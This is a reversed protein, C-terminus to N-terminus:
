LYNQILQLVQDEGVIASVAQIFETGLKGESDVSESILQLYGDLSSGSNMLLSDVEYWFAAGKAYFLGYYSMNRNKTVEFHAQYLGVTSNPMRSKNENWDDIPNQSIQSDQILSKYGYYHALSESVWLDYPYTSLTHFLEHGSIWFLRERSIVDIAGNELAYNSVFGTAGAAGGLVEDKKDIGVWALEAYQDSAEQDSFLSVLYSYQSILTNKHAGDVLAEGPSDTFIRFSTQQERFEAAAKGMMFILPPKNREPLPQCWEDNNEQSISGCVTITEINEIRPTLGWEFLM